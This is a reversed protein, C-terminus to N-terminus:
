FVGGTMQMGLSMRQRRPTSPQHVQQKRRLDPCVPWSDRGHHCIRPAFLSPVSGDARESVARDGFARRGPLLGLVGGVLHSASFCLPEHHAPCNQELARRSAVASHRMDKQPACRSVTRAVRRELKAPAPIERAGRPVLPSLTPLPAAPANRAPVKSVPGLRVGAGNKSRRREGAREEVKQPPAPSWDDGQSREPLSLTLLCGKGPGSVVHPQDSRMGIQYGSLCTQMRVLWLSCRGTKVKSFSMLSIM